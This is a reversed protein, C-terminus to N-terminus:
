QASTGRRHGRAGQPRNARNARNAYVALSGALVAIVLCGAALAARLPTRSSQEVWFPGVKALTPRHVVAHIEIPPAAAEPLEPLAAHLLRTTAARIADPRAQDDTLIVAAFTAASPPTVALPDRMAHHLVVNASVVGPLQALQGALRDGDDRDIARQHDIPGDIPPACGTAIAVAIAFGGLNGHM